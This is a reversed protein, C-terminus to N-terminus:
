FFYMVMAKYQDIKGHSDLNGTGTSVATIGAGSPASTGYGNYNSYFRLWEFAVRISPSPDHFISAGYVRFQNIQNPGAYNTDNAPLVWNAAAANNRAAGSYNQKLVGYQANVFTKNTIYYTLQAFGGYMTPSTADTPLGNYLGTPAPRWYSGVGPAPAGLYTFANQGVYGIASLALANTKDEKKEPIIPIFGRLGVMWANVNKDNYVNNAASGTVATITAITKKESAFIGGLGFKLMDPGIVGCADSTFGFETQVAPLESRGYSTNNGTAGDQQAHQIVGLMANFNKTLNYRFALQVPRSGVIGETSSSDAV